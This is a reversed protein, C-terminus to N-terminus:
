HLVIQFDSITLLKNQLVGSIDIVIVILSHGLTTIVTLLLAIKSDKQFYLLEFPFGTEFTLIKCVMWRLSAMWLFILIQIQLFGILTQVLLIMGEMLLSQTEVQMAPGVSVPHIHLPSGLFLIETPFPLLTFEQSIPELGM